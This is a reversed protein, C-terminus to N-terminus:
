NYVFVRERPPARVHTLNFSVHICQSRGRLSTKRKSESDLCCLADQGVRQKESASGLLDPIGVKNTPLRSNPSLSCGEMAEVADAM